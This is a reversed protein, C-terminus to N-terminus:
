GRREKTRCDCQNNKRKNPRYLYLIVCDMILLFFIGQHKNRQSNTAYLAKNYGPTGNLRRQHPSISKTSKNSYTSENLRNSSAAQKSKSTANIEQKVSNTPPFRSSSDKSGVGRAQMNDIEQNKIKKHDKSELQNGARNQNNM